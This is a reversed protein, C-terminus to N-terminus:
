LMRHCGTKASTEGAQFSFPLRQGNGAKESRNREIRLSKFDCDVCLDHDRRDLM